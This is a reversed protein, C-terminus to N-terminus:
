LAEEEGAIWLDLHKNILSRWRRDPPDALFTALDLRANYSTFRLPHVGVGLDDPLAEVFAVARAPDIAALAQAVDSVIADQPDPERHLLPDLVIRAAERDYRALLMALVAEPRAAFDRRPRSPGRFSVARWLFEPVLAPDIREAVPLLAAGVTAADQADLGGRRGEASLRDLAAFAEHLVRAARPKDADAQALAIMGIAYPRAFPAQSGRGLGRDALRRARDPDKRAMALCLTPLWRPDLVNALWAEARAPDREALRAADPLRDGIDHLGARHGRGLDAAEAPAIRELVGAFVHRAAPGPPTDPLARAAPMAARLVQTGKEIEGLDFYRGAVEGLLRVREDAQGILQAQVLARDVLELRTPRESEPLWRGVALLGEARWRAGTSADVAAIAADRDREWLARACELRVPGDAGNPPAENELIELARAPDVRALATLVLWRFGGRGEKLIREAPPLFVRRAMARMEDRSLTPPLTTMTAALPEDPRTLAVTISGAGPDIVRGSFRFGDAEVFLFSRFPRIGELRFRGRPDATARIDKGPESMIRVAAGAVPKGGRDAVSGEVVALGLGARPRLVLEPFTRAKGPTWATRAPEYGDAEALAAYEGRPDLIPPTRFWGSDNTRIVYAGRLEVLADRKVQGGAYHEQLRLHVSASAVRHGSSDVVRGALSVSDSPEVVLRAPGAGAKSEVSRATRRGGPAVASLDVPAEVVVRDIRFEGRPGAVARREQMGRASPAEDVPYSALVVAGPVPDGRDDVVVGTVTGARSLEIPPLDFGDVGRIVRPMNLGFKLHAFGEPPSVMILPPSGSLAFLAFRGGADTRVTGQDEHDSRYLYVGAGAIPAGTGRGRVMGKLRVAEYPKVDVRTTRGAEVSSGAVSSFFWPSDPPPNGHIRLSGVPV